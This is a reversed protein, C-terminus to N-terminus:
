VEYLAKAGREKADVWANFTTIDYLRDQGALTQQQAQVTRSQALEVNSTTESM